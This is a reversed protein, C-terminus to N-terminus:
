NFWFSYSFIQGSYVRNMLLWVEAQTRKGAVVFPMAAPRDLWATVDLAKPNTFFLNLNIGQNERLGWFPIVVKGDLILEIEEMVSLWCDIMEKTVAIGLASKQRPNPIWEHDDGTEALILKWMLRSQALMTKLHVLAAKLRDPEKVTVRLAPLAALLKLKEAEDGPPTDRILDFFPDAPGPGKQFLLTANDNFFSKADHALIIEAVASLLHCYGRFWCADGRDFKVM